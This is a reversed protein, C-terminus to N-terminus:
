EAIWLMPALREQEVFGLREYVVYAPAQRDVLLGVKRASTWQERLKEVLARAVGKRRWSPVVFLESITLDSGDASNSCALLGGVIKGNALALWCGKPERDIACALLNRAADLSLDGNYPPEAYTPALVSACESIDSVEAARINYSSAM